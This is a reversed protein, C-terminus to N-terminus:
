IPNGNTKNILNDLRYQNAYATPSLGTVKRFMKYFYSNDYYGLHESIATVTFRTNQLMEMAATIRLRHQYDLPTQGVVEKFVSLTYNPSRDILKALDKLHMPERFHQLIYKEMVRAFQLKRLPIPPSDLERSAMGLMEMLIGSRIIKYYSRKELSQRHLLIFREKFFDFSRTHIVKHEKSELLSLGWDDSCQFTIAYKQHLASGDNKAERETGSPIFLLDGKSAQIRNDNLQYTLQGETVLVLVHYQVHQLRNHWNPINDDLYTGMVTIM